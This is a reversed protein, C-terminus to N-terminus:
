FKIGDGESWEAGAEAWVPPMVARQSRQHWSQRDRRSIFPFRERGVSSSPISLRANEARSPRHAGTLYGRGIRSSEKEAGAGEVRKRVRGKERAGIRARPSFARSSIRSNGEKRTIAAEEKTKKNQQTSSLQTSNLQTSSPQTPNPNQPLKSQTNKSSKFITLTKPPPLLTSCLPPFKLHWGKANRYRTRNSISIKENEPSFSESIEDWRLLTKSLFFM